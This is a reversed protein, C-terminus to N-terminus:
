MSIYMHVYMSVNLLQPVKQNENCSSIKDALSRALIDNGSVFVIYHLKVNVFAVVKAVINISKV